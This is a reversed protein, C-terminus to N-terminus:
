HISCDRGLPNIHTRNRGLVCFLLVGHLAIRLHNLAFAQRLFKVLVLLFLRGLPPRKANIVVERFAKM